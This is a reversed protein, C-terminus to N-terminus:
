KEQLIDSKEELEGVRDKGTSREKIHLLEPAHLFIDGIGKISNYKQM